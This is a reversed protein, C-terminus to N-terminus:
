PGNEENRFVCEFVAIPFNYLIEFAISSAIVVPVLKFLTAPFWTIISLKNNSNSSISEIRSIENSLEVLIILNCITFWSKVRISVM